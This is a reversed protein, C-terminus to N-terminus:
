KAHSLVLENITKNLRANTKASSERVQKMEDLIAIEDRLMDEDNKHFQGRSFSNDVKAQLDDECQNILDETFDTISTESKDVSTEKKQIQVKLDVHSEEMFSNQNSQFHKLEEGLSPSVTIASELSLMPVPNLEFTKQKLETIGPSDKIGEEQNGAGQNSKDGAANDSQEDIIQVNNPLIHKNPLVSSLNFTKKQMPYIKKKKKGPFIRYIKDVFPCCSFCNRLGDALYQCCNRTYGLNCFFLRLVCFLMGIAVLSPGIGEMTAQIAPHKFEYYLSILTLIAGGSAMIIGLIILVDPGFYEKQARMSMNAEPANPDGEMSNRSSTSYSHNLPIKRRGPPILRREGVPDHNGLAVPFISIEASTNLRTLM